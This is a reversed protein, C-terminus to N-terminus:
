NRVSMVLLIVFGTIAAIVLIFSRWDSSSGKPGHEMWHKAAPWMRWLLMVFVAALAIKLFLEM